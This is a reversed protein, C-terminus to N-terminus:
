MVQSFVEAPNFTFLKSTKDLLAIFDPSNLLAEWDKQDGWRMLHVHSPKNGPFKSELLSSDLLGPQKAVFAVVEKLAGIVESRSKGDAANLLIAIVVGKTEAQASTVFLTAASSVTFLKVFDRKDM